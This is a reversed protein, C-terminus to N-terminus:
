TCPIEANVLNYMATVVQSGGASTDRRLIVITPFHPAIMVYTQSETTVRAMKQLIVTLWDSDRIEKRM